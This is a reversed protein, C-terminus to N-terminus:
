VWSADATCCPLELSVLDTLRRIPELCTGDDAIPTWHGDYSCAALMLLTRLPFFPLRLSLLRTHRSLDEPSSDHRWCLLDLSTLRTLPALIPMLEVGGISLATLPLPALLSFHGGWTSEM